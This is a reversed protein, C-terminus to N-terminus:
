SEKEIHRRWIELGLTGFRVKIDDKHNQAIHLAMDLVFQQEGTIRGENMLVVLLELIESM